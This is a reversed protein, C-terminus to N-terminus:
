SRGCTRTSRTVPSTMRSPSGSSPSATVITVGDTGAGTRAGGTAAGAVATTASGATDAAVATTAGTDAARVDAATTTGVRVGTGVVTTTGVRGVIGIGIGTTGVSGVVVGIMMGVSGVIGTTGVIMGLLALGTTGASSDAARVDAATTTGVRGVIGIGIGTMAVSGVVVGIMM